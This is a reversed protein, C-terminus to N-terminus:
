DNRNFIDEEWHTSNRKTAGRGDLLLYESLILGPHKEFDLTTEACEWSDLKCLPQIAHCYVAEINKKEFRFGQVTEKTKQHRRLEVAPGMVTEYGIHIIGARNDPIQSVAKSLMKKVDKAKRNLSSEAICEWKASYAEHIKHVFRNLVHLGDDPGFSSRFLM